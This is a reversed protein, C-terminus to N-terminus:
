KATTAPPSATLRGVFYQLDYAPDASAMVIFSSVVPGAEGLYRIGCSSWSGCTWASGGRYEINMHLFGLDKLRYGLPEANEMGPPANVAQLGKTKRAHVNGTLILPIEDAGINSLEHRLRDAMAADRANFASTGSLSPTPASDFALVRVRAGHRIQERVSRLLDLMARSTRGDQVPRTWFPTSLLALQPSDSRAHLFDELLHQEGSPYELGLAVAHGSQWFNCVLAGVFAPAEVTGHMDAVFLGRAHAPYRDFGSITGCDPAASAISATLSLAYTLARVLVQSM